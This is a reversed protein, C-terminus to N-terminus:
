GLGTQAGDGSAPEVEIGLDPRMVGREAPQGLPARRLHDRRMADPGPDCGLHEDEDAIVRLPDAGFGGEGLEATGAWDRGRAALGAPVPQIFRPPCRCALAARWRTTTTRM